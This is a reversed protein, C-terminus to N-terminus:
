NRRLEAGVGAKKFFAAWQQTLLMARNSHLGQGIGYVCVTTDPPLHFSPPPLKCPKRAREDCRALPSIEVMDSIALIVNGHAQPNIAHSADFFAAVLESQQHEHGRVRNPISLVLERLDQAIRERTDGEATHKIQIRTRFVLPPLTADGITTVLVTAGLQMSHLRKEIEPLVSGLYDPRLAPSGGSVDVLFQLVPATAILDGTPTAQAPPPQASAFVLALIWFIWFLKIAQLAETCGKLLAIERKAQNKESRSTKVSRLVSEAKEQQKTISTRYAEVAGPLAVKVLAECNSAQHEVEFQLRRREQMAAAYQAALQQRKSAEKFNKLEDLCRALYRKALVFLAGGTTYLLAVVVTGFWVFARPADGGAHTFANSRDWVDAFMGSYAPLLMITLLFVLLTYAIAALKRGLRGGNDWAESLLCFVGLSVFSVSWLALSSGTLNGTTPDTFRESQVNYILGVDMLATALVAIIGASLRLWISYRPNALLYEKALRSPHDDADM